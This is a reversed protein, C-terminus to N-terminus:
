ALNLKREIRDLTICYAILGLVIFACSVVFILMLTSLLTANVGMDSMYYEYGPIIFLPALSTIVQSIVSIVTNAAYYIGIGALLKYKNAVVAGMTICLEIIAISYFDSAIFFFLAAIVYPIIWLLTPGAMSLTEFVPAYVSLNIPGLDSPPAIVLYIVVCGVIVLVHFIDWVLANLTKSLLIESRKVPLTFTLYGEDSYLNKYFRYQVLVLTVLPSSFLAIISFFFVLMGLIGFIVAAAESDVSTAGIFARLGLAGVVSIVPLTAAVIWWISKIANFDYKFLKKLM